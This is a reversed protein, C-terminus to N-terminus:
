TQDPGTRSTTSRLGGMRGAGGGSTELGFNRLDIQRLISVADGIGRTSSIGRGSAHLTLFGTLSKIISARGARQIKPQCASGLELNHLGHRRTSGRPQFSRRGPTERSAAQAQTVTSVPRAPLVDVHARELPPRPIRSFEGLRPGVLAPKIQDHWSIRGRSSGNGSSRDGKADRSLTLLMKGAVLSPENALVAHTAARAVTLADGQTVRGVASRRCLGGAAVGENVAGFRTALM